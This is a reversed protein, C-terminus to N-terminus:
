ASGGRQAGAPSEDERAMTRPPVSARERRLAATSLRALLVEGSGAGSPEGMEHVRDRLARVRMSNTADMSMVLSPRTAAQTWLARVAQAASREVGRLQLM